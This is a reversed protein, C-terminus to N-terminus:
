IRLSGLRLSCIHDLFFVVVVCGLKGVCMNLLCYVNISLRPPLCDFIYMSYYVCVIYFFVDDMDIYQETQFTSFNM